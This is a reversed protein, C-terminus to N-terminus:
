GRTEADGRVSGRVHSRASGSQGALGDLLAIIVGENARLDLEGDVVRGEGDLYTSVTLRGSPSGPLLVRAADGSFNLAVLVREAGRERRFVFCCETAVEVPAYAGNRLAPTAKRYALLRRYLSLLSRSDDLQSAVNVSHDDATLPLWPTAGPPAFGANPGATWPMPTRAPDRDLSDHRRESPITGDVMGLEDGYYLTPTGRLSLLLMAALRAQAQGYRSALRARDHNGLVWNPWAGPPLAAEMEDVIARIASATWPIEILRFNFLLHLEDLEVGFHRVWDAWPMVEVEGIAMRPQDHGYSDLLRRLDRYVAHLDPHRRDYLHRQRAFDPHQKDYPNRPAAPTPPNDRLAPDKMILHAVDIRFGDVGKELWFRVIDFMAERVAPNRWNLDPQEQYHSHLYYQDTREDWEWVSGGMESLWNNPASGDPKPDAWVYWDRKPNHRSARSEAFWPHQDSTHNPVFDIIVKLRRCHAVEVLREFTAMTGFLPDVDAHDSIDYGGDKQPSPYFPSIWLADVGLTESLYDLREVIGALDGVGDGSADQFSRPYIQYIVGTQWWPPGSRRAM